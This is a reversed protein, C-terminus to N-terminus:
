LIVLLPLLPPLETISVKGPMHTTGRPSLPVSSCCLSVGRLHRLSHRTATVKRGKRYLVTLLRFFSTPVCSCLALFGSHQTPLVALTPLLSCVPLPYAISECLEEMLAAGSGWIAVGVGRVWQSGFTEIGSHQHLSNTLKATM